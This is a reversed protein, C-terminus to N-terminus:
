GTLTVSDGAISQTNIGLCIASILLGKKILTISSTCNATFKM